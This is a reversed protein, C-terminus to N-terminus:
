ISWCRSGSIYEAFSSLTIVSGIGIVTDSLSFGRIEFPAEGSTGFGGATMTRKDYPYKSRQKSSRHYLIVSDRLLARRSDHINSRRMVMYAPTKTIFGQASFAFTTIYILISLCNINM